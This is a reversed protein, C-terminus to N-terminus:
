NQYKVRYINVCLFLNQLSDIVLFSQNYFYWQVCMPVMFIIYKSSCICSQVLCWEFILPSAVTKRKNKKQINSSKNGLLLLGHNIKISILLSFLNQMKIQTYVASPM